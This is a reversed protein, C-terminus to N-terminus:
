KIGDYLFLAVALTQDDSFPGGYAQGWTPMGSAPKGRRIRMLLQEQSMNSLWEKSGLPCPPKGYGDKGHCMACTGMFIERGSAISVVFPKVETPTPAPAKVVASAQQSGASALGVETWLYSVVAKIDDDALPGGKAKGWAPMMPPKGNTVHTVVGDFTKSKMWTQDTLNCTAVKDRTEGHCMACTSKFIDKGKAVAEVTIAASTSPAAVQQSGASALGVETWLYSVVAKIDDDALPGGKAKGWAPMMPPKGNTVHTVVGDFTKSKMWTQDTLNCTAVKDRTEGHCMACTSKFIDKGKAVAEVTIAASASPAAAQQSGASALGVETWLYSVVAKIDDDSLPGGKAKGWAPMMPPKGNTVHTVVGDYTKSKMWTQDTLNCTAVKDRTEGHCMACTSKFIDKGKAVAEVTIAPGTGASPATATTGGGSGLGVEEWLYTVVAKIDDDSLPGGKAKGWAPMMPPKGNTVHTVIGDFTKSKMWTQDTLNCTAVKDRTEGHCMACTTKFIDKGKAALSATGTGSVPAKADAAVADSIPAIGAANKLYAVVSKVDDASLPGGKANGWSPMAGKGFTISQILTDDGKNKLWDGDALKCTPIQDRTAGHCMICKDSATFIEKGRAVAAATVPIAVPAPAAAGSGGTSIAQGSGPSTVSDSVASSKLFDVLSQIQANTLAGGADVGWAPMGKANGRLITDHLVDDTERALFEKSFLKIGPVKDGSLGHCATCNRLFLDRATGPVGSAVLASSSNLGAWTKMYALLSALDPVGLTGGSSTGFAPMVGKGENISTLIAGDSLSELYPASALPTTPVRDGEVGHCQLCNSLYLDRGRSSLQATRQEVSHRLYSVVAEIDIGELKGGSEKSQPPMAGKGARVVTALESNTKTELFGKANLPAIPIRDGNPGHCRACSQAYVREGADALVTTTQRGAKANMYAIVARVDQDAFPGGKTQGFAPMVGKGDTIVAILTADGRSELFEKSALPSIPLRDGTSGHCSQCEREYFSGGRKVVGSASVDGAFLRDKVLAAAGIGAVIVAVAMAIRIIPGLRKGKMSVNEQTVQTQKKAPSSLPAGRLFRWFWGAIEMVVVFLLIAPLAV